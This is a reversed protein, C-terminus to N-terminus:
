ISSYYIFCTFSINSESYITFCFFYPRRYPRSYFSKQQEYCGDHQTTVNTVTLSGTQKDLKLRDRFRGHLVDDYVTFRNAKKNIQAILTKEDGFRWQIEDGDSMETLGSNLTVSDGELVSVTDGCM